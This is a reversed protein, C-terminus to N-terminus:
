SASKRAVQHWAFFGHENKVMALSEIVSRVLLELSYARPRVVFTVFSSFSIYRGDWLESGFCFLPNWATPLFSPRRHGEVLGPVSPSGHLSLIARLLVGYRLRSFSM